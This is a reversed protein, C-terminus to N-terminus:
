HTALNLPQLYDNCYNILGILCSGKIRIENNFPEVESINYIFEQSNTLTPAKTTQQLSITAQYLTQKNNKQQTFKINNYTKDASPINFTDCLENIRPDTNEETIGLFYKNAAFKIIKDFNKKDFDQQFYGMSSHKTRAGIMFETNVSEQFLYNSIYGNLSDINLPLTNNNKLYILVLTSIFIKGATDQEFLRKEGSSRQIDKLHDVLSSRSALLTKANKGELNILDKNYNNVLDITGIEPKSNTSILDKRSNQNVRSGSINKFNNQLSHAMKTIPPM